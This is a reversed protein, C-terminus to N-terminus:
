DKIGLLLFVFPRAMSWWGSIPKIKSKRNSELHNYKITVPVELMEVKLVRLFKIHLYYELEYRNLWEQDLKIRPDRLLAVKYARLGCTIDTMKTGLILSWLVSLIPISIKRFLPLNVSRGERMFRSGQIYSFQGENLKGLIRPFEAPVMKGNSSSILVGDFNKEIAFNLGSRIAAGIGQNQQHHIVQFGMKEAMERSRDTSGDDVVIVQNKEFYKLVEVLYNEIEVEQNYNAVIVLNKSSPTGNTM